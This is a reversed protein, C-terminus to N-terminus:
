QAEAQRFINEELNGQGAGVCSRHANAYFLYGGQRMSQPLPNGQRETSTTRGLLLVRGQEESWSLERLVPSLNLFGWDYVGRYTNLSSWWWDQPRSCYGQSSPQVHIWCLINLVEESDEVPVVFTPAESFFRADVQRRRPCMIYRDMANRVFTRADEPDSGGCGLLLSFGDELLHFAYVNTGSDMHEAKLCDLFKRREASELFVREGFLLTLFFAHKGFVIKM